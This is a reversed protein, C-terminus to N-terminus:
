DITLVEKIIWLELTHAPRLSPGRESESVLAFNVSSVRSTMLNTLIALAGLDGTSNM